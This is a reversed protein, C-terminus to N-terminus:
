WAVAAPATRTQMSGDGLQGSDGQGWCQVGTGALRACTFADGAVVEVVGALGPVLAAATSCPQSVGLVGCTTMTAYGLQGRDNAGWCKVSGDALRACAHARGIAVQTARAVGPVTTPTPVCPNLVRCGGNPAPQGLEGHGSVGWCFVTGAMTVACADAGGAAIQVVGSVGVVVGPTPQTGSLAGVGCQGGSNAGWCRMTRDALLACTFDNGAALATVNALGPVLALTARSQTMGDGLQDNSGDGACAVTGDKGLVCLHRDGLAADVAEFGAPLAVDTPHFSCSTASPTGCADTPPAVLESSADDGWCSVKGQGLVACAHRARSAVRSASALPVAVPRARVVNTGDGIQGYANGGWCRIAGDAIRACAHTSGAALQAADACKGASCTSPCATTCSGCHRPDSDLDFCDTGCANTPKCTCVGRQCSDKPQACTAGVDVKGDCDNDRGDCVEVGSPTCACTGTSGCLWEPGPPCDSAAACAKTCIGNALCVGAVCDSNKLCPEGFANGSPADAISADVGADIPTSAENGSCGGAAVPAVAVALAAHVAFARFRLM